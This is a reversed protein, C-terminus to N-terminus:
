SANAIRWAQIQEAHEDPLSQVNLFALMVAAILEPERRQVEQLIAMAMHSTLEGTRGALLGEGAVTTQYFFAPRGPAGSRDSNASVLGVQELQYLSQRIASTTVGLARALPAVRAGGYDRLAKLVAQQADPLAHLCSVPPPGKENELM